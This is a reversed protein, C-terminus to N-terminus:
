ILSKWGLSIKRRKISWQIGYFPYGVCAVIMEVDIDMYANDFIVGEGKQIDTSTIILRGDRNSLETNKNTNRYGDSYKDNSTKIKKLNNFDIFDKLTKKLPNKDNRTHGNM